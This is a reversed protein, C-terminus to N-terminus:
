ENESRHEPVAAATEDLFDVILQVLPVTTEPSLIDGALGHGPSNSLAHFYNGPPDIESWKEKMRDLSVVADEESYVCLSRPKFNTYDRECCFQVLALLQVVGDTRYRETWYLAHQQNQPEFGAYPGALVRAIQQGWPYLAFKAQKHAVGFNPSLLVIADIEPDGLSARWLALTAGTSHGTLVVREGLRKGIEVAENVDNLWDNATVDAFEEDRLGHATLRTYFVNAQLHEAVLDVVPTAIRGRRRSDMCTSSLLTRREDIM